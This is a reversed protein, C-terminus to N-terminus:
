ALYLNEWKGRLAHTQFEVIPLLTSALPQLWLGNYFVDFPSLGLLVPFLSALAAEKNYPVIEFRLVAEKRHSWYFGFIYWLFLPAILIVLIRTTYPILVIERLGISSSLFAAHGKGYHSSVVRATTCPSMFVRFKSRHNLLDIIDRKM